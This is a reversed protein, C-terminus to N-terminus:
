LPKVPVYIDVIQKGDAHEKPNNLYLEFCPRDDCQYGSEPLWGGYMTNWADKYQDVSIEFHGIAYEGGPIKIKGIEGKVETDEPVSICVSIRLKSEETIEPSDHYITIMKTEPFKILGRPGAWKFLKGFLNEFLEADGKYPGIHRVYAVCMEKVKKVEVKSELITKGKMTIRWEFEQNDNNYVSSIQIEKRINSNQIYKNSETQYNNSNNGKKNKWQTASMKYYEKFYRAFAASSSFGCDLAIETITKNIDTILLTAAKEIRIRQIFNYLTENTISAFIRHFHYRSFNAIKSLEELCLTKHINNDIYDIVRNIRSIYEQRKYDNNIM